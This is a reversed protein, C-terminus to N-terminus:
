RNLIDGHDIFTFEYVKRSIPWLGQYMNVCGMDVVKLKNAEVTKTSMPLIMCLEELESIAKVKM